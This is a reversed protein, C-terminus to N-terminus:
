VHALGREKLRRLFAERQQEVVPLFDFFMVRVRTEYTIRTRDDGCFLRVSNLLARGQFVLSRGNLFRVDVNELGSRRYVAEQVRREIRLQDPVSLEASAVLGIDIDSFATAKGSAQSGYLYAVAVPAGRLAATAAESLQEIRARSQEM